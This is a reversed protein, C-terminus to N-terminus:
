YKTTQSLNLESGIPNASSRRESSAQWVSAEGQHLLFATIAMSGFLGNPTAAKRAKIIKGQSAPTAMTKIMAM